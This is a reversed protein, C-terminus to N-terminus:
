YGGGGLLACIDDGVKWGSVGAGLAAVTGACELGPTSPSGAPPPHNGLVQLLDARNVGGAKVQIRSKGPAATPVGSGVPGRPGGKGGDIAIATMTKPLNM